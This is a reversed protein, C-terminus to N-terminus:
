SLTLCLHLYPFQSYFSFEVNLTQLPFRAMVFYILFASMDLTHIVDFACM